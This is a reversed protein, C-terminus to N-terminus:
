FDSGQNWLFGLNKPAFFQKVIKGSKPIGFFRQKKNDM